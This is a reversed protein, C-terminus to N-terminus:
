IAQVKGLWYGLEVCLSEVFRSNCVTCRFQREASQEDPGNSYRREVLGSRGCGLLVTIYKSHFHLIFM